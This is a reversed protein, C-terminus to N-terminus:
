IFGSSENGLTRMQPHSRARRDLMILPPAFTDTILSDTILRSLSPHQVFTALLATIIWYTVAFGTRASVTPSNVSM